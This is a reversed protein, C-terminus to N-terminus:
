LGTIAGFLLGALPAIIYNAFLLLPIILILWNREMYDHIWQFRYPLLSFFVKAGDLPPVPILNFVGLVINMYVIIALIHSFPDGLAIGLEAHFRLMLGFTLAILFNAAVGAVGVLFTGVRVNKLNYPNYPVPKAWGFAFPHGAATSGMLMLVPLIISGMPDIHPVPNLTLRGALRATPDGLSDAVLGHAVEHIIISFILVVLYFITETEM